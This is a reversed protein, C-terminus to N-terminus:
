SRKTVPVYLYATEPKHTQPNHIYYEFIPLSDDGYVYGFAPAIQEGIWEYPPIGGHWPECQLANSTEASILVRIYLVTPVKYIDFGEPQEQTFVQYGFMVGNPRENSLYNISMCISANVEPQNPKQTSNVAMFENMIEEVDPEDTNNHAYGIKGCWFTEKWEILEVSIGNYQYTEVIREQPHQIM